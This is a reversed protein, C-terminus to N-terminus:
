APRILFVTGAPADPIPDGETLIDPWIRLFDSPAADPWPPVVGPETTEAIQKLYVFRVGQFSTAGGLDVVGFVRTLLLPDASPNNLENVWLEDGVRIDATTGAPLLARYRAGSQEVMRAVDPDQLATYGTLPQVAGPGVYVATRPGPELGGSEDLVDDAEGNTRAIVLGDVLWDNVVDVLGSLDLGQATM